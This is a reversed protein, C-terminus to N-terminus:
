CARERTARTDIETGQHMAQTDLTIGSTRGIKCFGNCAVGKYRIHQEICGKHAWRTETSRTHIYTNRRKTKETNLVIGFTAEAHKYHTLSHTRSYIVHHRIREGKGRSNLNRIHMQTCHEIAGSM